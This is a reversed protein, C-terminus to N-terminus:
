FICYNKLRELLKKQKDLKKEAQEIMGAYADLLMQKYYEYNDNFSFIRYNKIQEFESLKVYRRGLMKNKGLFFDVGYLDDSVNSVNEGICRYQVIQCHKQIIAYEYFEIQEM